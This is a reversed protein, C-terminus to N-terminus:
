DLIHVGYATLFLNKVPLFTLSKWTLLLMREHVRDLSLDNFHGFCMIRGIDILFSRPLHGLRAEGHLTGYVDKEDFTRPPNDNNGRIIPDLTLLDYIAATTEVQGEVGLM